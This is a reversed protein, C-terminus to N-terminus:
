GTRHISGPKDAMKVEVGVVGSDIKMEMQPYRTIDEVMPQLLMKITKQKLLREDADVVVRIKGMFRYEIIKAYEKIHTIEVQITSFDGGKVSYRFMNSLSASIDDYGSGQLPHGYRKYM